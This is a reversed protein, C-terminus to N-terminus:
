HPLENACCSPSSIFPPCPAGRAGCRRGPPSSERGRGLVAEGRIGSSCSVPIQGASGQLRGTPPAFAEPLPPPISPAPLLRHFRQFRRRRGRRRGGAWTLCGPPCCLPPSPASGFPGQALRAEWTTAFASCTSPSSSCCGPFDWRRGSSGLPAPNRLSM